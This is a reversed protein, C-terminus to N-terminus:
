GARQCGGALGTVYRGIMRGARRGPHGPAVGFKSHGAVGTFAAQFAADALDEGAMGIVGIRWRDGGRRFPRRGVAHAPAAAAVGVVVPFVTNVQGLQGGKQPDGLRCSGGGQRQFGVRGRAAPKQRPQLLLHVTAADNIHQTFAYLVPLIVNGQVVGAGRRAVIRRRRAILLVAKGYGALQAVAAAIRFGQVQTQEDVPQRDDGGLQFVAEGLLGGGIRHRLVPVVPIRPLRQEAQTAAQRVKGNVILLRQETGFQSALGRYKQREVLAPIVARAVRGVGVADFGIVQPLVRQRPVTQGINHLVIGQKRRRRARAAAGAGATVPPLLDPGAIMLQIHHAAQPIIGGGRAGPLAVQYLM